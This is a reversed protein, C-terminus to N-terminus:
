GLRSDHFDIDLAVRFGHIAFPGVTFGKVKTRGRSFEIATGAIKFYVEVATTPLCTDGLLAHSNPYRAQAVEASNLTAFEVELSDGNAYSVRLSRGSPPSVLDVPEGVLLWFNDEIRVRPEGSITPMNVNLLLYGEEDRNFWVVPQGNMQVIIPTGFYFSNGVVAVISQRMWEFRGKVDRARKVGEDKFSRLQEKTYAGADAMAHHKACLAIM